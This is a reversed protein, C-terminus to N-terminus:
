RWGMGSGSGSGDGGGSVVGGVQDLWEWLGGVVEGPLMGQEEVGLLWEEHGDLMQRLGGLAGRMTENERRLDAVRKKLRCVCWPTYGCTCTPPPPHNAAATIIATPHHLAMDPNYAPTSTTTPDTAVAPELDFFQELGGMAAAEFDQHPTEYLLPPAPLFFGTEPPPPYDHAPTCTPVAVMEPHDVVPGANENIGTIAAEPGPQNYDERAEQYPLSDTALASAGDEASDIAPAVNQDGPMPTSGPPNTSDSIPTWMSDPSRYPSPEEPFRKVHNVQDHYPTHEARFGEPSYDRESGFLIDAIRYWAEDSQSTVREARGPMFVSKPSFTLNSPPGFRSGAYYPEGQAGSIWESWESGLRSPCPPGTSRPPGGSEPNPNPM